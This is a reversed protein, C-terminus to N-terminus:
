RALLRITRRVESADPKSTSVFTAAKFLDAITLIDRLDRDASVVPRQSRGALARAIPGRLSRVERVLRSVDIIAFTEANALDRVLVDSITSSPPGAGFRAVAEPSNGLVVRDRDVRSAVRTRLGDTLVSLRSEGVMRSEVRLHEMRRKSDFAYFALLTRIANDVPGALEAFGAPSSWGIVGLIPFHPRIAPDPEVEVTLIMGPGLRPLVETLPDRDLLAGRLGLRLNDLAARDDEPVLDWAADRIARFDVNASAVAITSPPVMAPLVVPRPPGTLWDKLWPDLKEPVLSESTELSVGDQWRLAFGLRDMAGLYRAIMASLKDDAPQPNQAMAGELFRPSVFLSALARDPLSSRVKKFGADDLLSPRGSVKRDIVDLIMAESNSWGFTGDELLVYFEMPRGPARFSRASYKVPGRSRDDVHLLEGGRFQADNFARILRELLPRDRPKLLLLGRSRDPRGSPDTQLSLVLADGLLEDRLNALSVGLAAQVDESAKEAKRFPETEMWARVSPLGRLKDFLPSGMVERARGRFDEVTLTVGSEASVLKLLGDAPGAADASAATALAWCLLPMIRSRRM